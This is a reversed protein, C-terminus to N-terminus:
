GYSRPLFKRRCDAAPCTMAVTAHRRWVLTSFLLSLTRLARVSISKVCRMMENGKRSRDTAVGQTFLCPRHIMHGIRSNPEASDLRM